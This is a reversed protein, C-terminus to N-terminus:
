KSFAYVVYKCYIELPIITNQCMVNPCFLKNFYTISFFSDGAACLEGYFGDKPM